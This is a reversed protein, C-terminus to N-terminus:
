RNGINWAQPLEQGCFSCSFHGDKVIQRERCAKCCRFECAPDFASPHAIKQRDLIEEMVKWTDVPPCYGTSQNSLRTIQFSKGARGISLEGAAAVPQGHACAVHESRRDAIWLEGALDVIYTVAVYGEADEDRQHHLFWDELDKTAIIRVREHNERVLHPPGVYSYSTMM